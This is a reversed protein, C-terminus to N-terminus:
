TCGSKMNNIVNTRDSDEFYSYFRIILTVSEDYLSKESRNNFTIESCVIPCLLATHVYVDNHVRQKIHLKILVAGMTNYGHHTGTQPTAKDNIKFKIHSRTLKFNGQEFREM